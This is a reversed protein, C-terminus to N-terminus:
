GNRSTARLSMLSKSNQIVFLIRSSPIGHIVTSTLASKAAGDMQWFVTLVPVFFIAYPSFLGNSTNDIVANLHCNCDCLELSGGYASDKFRSQFPELGEPPRPCSPGAEVSAPPPEQFFGLTANVTPAALLQSETFSSGRRPPLPPNANSSPHQPPDVTVRRPVRIVRFNEAVTSQCRRVIDVLLRRLDEEIPVM